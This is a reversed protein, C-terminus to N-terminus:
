YLDLKVRQLQERIINGYELIIFCIGPPQYFYSPPTEMKPFLGVDWHLCNM